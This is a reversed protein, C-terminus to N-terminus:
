KKIAEYFDRATSLRADEALATELHLETKLTDLLVFYDLSSGGLDTFFDSNMGVEKEDIQLATAFCQRIKEELVSLVGEVYGDANQMDILVYGGAAYRGAIKKRSLKFEGAGLLEDTTLAIQTVEDQLHNEALKQRLQKYVSQLKEASFCYEISALLTPTGRKDAFLCLNRVNPAFLNGEILEPNLNEGNKCVILDDKRGQNYYKGKRIEVLDKTHFWADCDTVTEEKGCLIRSAMAKGRVLLEGEDSVAYEVNLFPAGISGKNRVKARMSTEVSTIGAETMGFGNAMHYGIGNYFCLTECSVASGGTLLFRISEGFMSERIEKFLSKALGQGLRGTKNVFNLAKQFKDYTKEGRERIARIAKKHVTNWVLPVAFIHTVKHKKITNLLTQPNMDKLFILTRSFFTFWLYVASFGFIHYFPLAALLKLEGEYHAKMQPCNKIIEASGCIQYYFNEATYACLKVAGSTGSSMFLVEDGWVGPLYEEGRDKEFIEEVRFTPVSFSESDSLVAAVNHEAFTQELVGVPLRSNLLLPRYGCMLVSWFTQIWALSNHMYVGILAGQGINHLTHSFATAVTRIKRECEGYTVKKIRYGDLYEMIVNDKESFMYSYLTQFSKEEARYRKIKDELYEDVDSFGNINTLKMRFELFHLFRQVAASIVICLLIKKHM